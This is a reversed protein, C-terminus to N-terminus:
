LGAAGKFLGLIKYKDEESDAYLAWHEGNKFEVVFSFLIAELDDYGEHWEKLAKLQGQLSVEDLADALDKSSRYLFISGKVFKYYRRKWSLGDKSQITVWGAQESEMSVSKFKAEAKQIRKKRELEERQKAEEARRAAFETQRAQEKRWRELRRHEEMRKERDQRRREELEQRRREEEEKEMQEKRKRETTVRRLEREIELRRRAEYEIVQREMEEKERRIRELRMEEQQQAEKDEKERQLQLERRKRARESPDNPRGGDLSWKGKLPVAYPEVEVVVNTSGKSHSVTAHESLSRPRHYTAAARNSAFPSAPPPSSRSEGVPPAYYVANDKPPTPPPMDASDSSDKKKRLFNSFINGGVGKPLPPVPPVHPPEIHPAYTAGFSRRGMDQTLDPQSPARLPKLEPQSPARLPQLPRLPPAIEHRDRQEPPPRNTSDALHKPRLPRLPELPTVPAPERQELSLKNTAHVLTTPTTQSTPSAFATDPNIIAERVNDATILSLSDVTFISQHRKFIGGIRRSHVLARARKVGSVTTPIYNIIIYGPDVDEEERYFAIFVKNLDSLRTKM